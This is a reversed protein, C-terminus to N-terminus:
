GWPCLAAPLIIAICFELSVMRALVAIKIDSIVVSTLEKSGKVLLLNIRMAWSWGGQHLLFSAELVRV